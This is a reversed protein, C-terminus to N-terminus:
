NKKAVIAVANLHDKYKRFVGRMTLIRKREKPHTAINFVIGLARLLGEDKIVRGPELLSMPNKEVKVVSFGEKELLGTVYAATEFEQFGLEAFSFLMDNIQQGLVAFKEVEAAAEAKLKEVKQIEPQGQLALGTTLFVGLLILKKM